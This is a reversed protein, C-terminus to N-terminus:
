GAQASSATASPPSAAPPAVGRAGLKEVLWAVATQVAHANEELSAIAHGQKPFELARVQLWWMTRPSLLAGLPLHVTHCPVM